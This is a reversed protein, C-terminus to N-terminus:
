QFAHLVNGQNDMLFGPELSSSQVFFGSPLGQATLYTGGRDSAMLPVQAVERSWVVQQSHKDLLQVVRGTGSAPTPSYVLLLHSPNQALVQAHFRPTAPAIVQLRELGRDRAYGAVWLDETMQLYHRPFRQIDTSDQRYLSFYGLYQPQGPDARQWYRLLLYRRNDSSSGSLEAYGWHESVGSAQAARQRDSASITADPLLQGALWYAYYVTGDATTIKFSDPRDRHSFEIEAIGGGLQDPHRAILEPTLDVFGNAGPDFRLVRQKELQLYLQGDSFNRLYARNHQRDIRWSQPEALLAGSHMDTVAVLFVDQQAEDRQSYVDVRSFKGAAEYLASAEARGRPPELPTNQEGRDFLGSVGALVLGALLVALAIAAVLWRRGHRYATGLEVATQGTLGAVTKISFVRGCGACAQEQARPTTPM